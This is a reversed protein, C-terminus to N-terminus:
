MVVPLELREAAACLVKQMPRVYPIGVAAVASLVIRRVNVYYQGNELILCSVEKGTKRTHELRRFIAPVLSEILKDPCKDLCHRLIKVKEALDSDYSM